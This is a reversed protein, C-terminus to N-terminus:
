KECNLNTAISISRSAKGLKSSNYNTQKCTIISKHESYKGSRSYSTKFMMSVALSSIGIQSISRCNRWFSFRRPFSLFYILKTKKM